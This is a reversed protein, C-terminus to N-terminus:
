LADTEGKQSDRKKIIYISIWHCFLPLWNMFSGLGFIIISIGLFKNEEYWISIDPNRYWITLAVVVCVPFLAYLLVTFGFVNKDRKIMM